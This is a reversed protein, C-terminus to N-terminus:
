KTENKPHPTKKGKTPKTLPMLPIFPTIYQITFPYM